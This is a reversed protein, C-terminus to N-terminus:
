FGPEGTATGAFGATVGGAAAADVGAAEGSERLRLIGWSFPPLFRELSRWLSALAVLSVLCGGAGVEVCGGVGGTSAGNGGAIGGAESGMGGLLGTAGGVLVSVGTRSPLLSLEKAASAISASM